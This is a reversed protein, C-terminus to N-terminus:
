NEYAQFKHSIVILFLPPPAPKVDSSVEKNKDVLVDFTCLKFVLLSRLLEKNGKSKYAEETNDFDIHIQNQQASSATKTQSILEVPVAEVVSCGDLQDKDEHTKTSAVTSRCRRPSIRIRHIHGANARSLAAVIKAYSM